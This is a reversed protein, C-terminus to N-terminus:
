MTKQVPKCIRREVFADPEDREHGHEIQRREDSIIKEAVL